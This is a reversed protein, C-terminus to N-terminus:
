PMVFSCKNFDSRWQFTVNSLHIVSFIQWFHLNNYDLLMLTHVTIAKSFFCKVQFIFIKKMFYLYHNLMSKLKTCFYYVILFFIIFDRTTVCTHTGESWIAASIGIVTLFAIVVEHGIVSCSVSSCVWLSSPDNSLSCSNSHFFLM